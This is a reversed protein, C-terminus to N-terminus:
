RGRWAGLGIPVARLNIVFVFDSETEENRDGGVVNNTPSERGGSHRLALPPIM